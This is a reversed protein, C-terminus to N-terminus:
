KAPAAPAEHESQYRTVLTNYRTVVDEYKTTLDNYAAVAQNAKAAVDRNASVLEERQSLLTKINEDRGAIASKYETLAKQWEALQTSLKGKEANLQFLEAKQQRILANNEDAQTKFAVIEHKFEETDEHAHQITEEQATLKAAQSSSTQRLDTLQHSYEKESSWQAICLGGLGVLLALNLYDFYKSM